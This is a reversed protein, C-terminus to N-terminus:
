RNTKDLVNESEKLSLEDSACQDFAMLIDVGLNHQIKVAKEPTFIHKSGDLISTFEVGQDNVKVLKQDRKNLSWVQFGGSDSLIPKNWGMFKHIGGFKKIYSDGPKLYLHYTNVLLMQTKANSVDKVDLSKLYGKTAPPMFVPTEIFGHETKLKGIRAKNKKSTKLVKFM